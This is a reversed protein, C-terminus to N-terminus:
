HFVNNAISVVGWDYPIYDSMFDATHTELLERTDNCYVRLEMAEGSEPRKASIFAWTDEGVSAEHPHLFHHMNRAKGDSDIRYWGAYANKILAMPIEDNYCVWIVHPSTFNAPLYRHMVKQENFEMDEHLIYLQMYRGIRDWSSTNGARSVDFPMVFTGSEKICELTTIDAYLDILIAGNGLDYAKNSVFGEPEPVYVHTVYSGMFSFPEGRIGTGDGPLIVEAWKEEGVSADTVEGDKVVWEFRWVPRDSINTIYLWNEFEAHPVVELVNQTFYAYDHMRTVEGQLLPEIWEPFRIDAHFGAIQVQTGTNGGSDGGQNDGSDGNSPTNTANNRPTTATGSSSEDGGGCATLAFVM